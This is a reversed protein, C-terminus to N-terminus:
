EREGGLEVVVRDQQVKVTLGKKGGKGNGKGAKGM